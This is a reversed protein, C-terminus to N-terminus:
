LWVNVCGSRKASYECVDSQDESAESEITEVLHFYAWVPSKRTIKLTVVINEAM